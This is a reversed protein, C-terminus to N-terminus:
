VEWAAKALTGGAPRDECVYAAQDRWRNVGSGLLARASAPSHDYTYSLATGAGAATVSYYRGDPLVLYGLTRGYREVTDQIPDSSVTVVQYLLLRGCLQRRPGRQVHVHLGAKARVGGRSM